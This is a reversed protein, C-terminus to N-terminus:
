KRTVLYIGVLVTAVGVGVWTWLKPNGYRTKILRKSRQFVNNQPRDDDPKATGENTANAFSRHTDHAAKVSKEFYSIIKDSLPIDSEPEQKRPEQEPDWVFVDSGQVRAAYGLMELYAKQSVPDKLERVQRPIRDPDFGREPLM